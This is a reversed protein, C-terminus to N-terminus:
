TPTRALKKMRKNERQIGQKAKLIKDKEHNNKIM